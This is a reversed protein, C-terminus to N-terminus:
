IDGTISFARKGALNGSLAHDNIPVGRQGAMFIELRAQYQKLLKADRAIRKAFTKVFSHGPEIPKM